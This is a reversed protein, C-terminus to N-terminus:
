RVIKQGPHESKLAASQEPRLKASKTGTPAPDFFPGRLVEAGSAPAPPPPEWVFGHTWTVRYCPKGRCILYAEFHKRETVKNLVFGKPLKINPGLMAAASSPRDFIRLREKDRYSLGGRGYCPSKKAADVFWKPTKPDTTLDVPGGTTEIKSPLYGVQKKGDKTTFSVELEIWLFQVWCCDLANGSSHKADLSIWGKSSSGESVELQANTHVVVKGEHEGCKFAENLHLKGEDEVTLGTAVSLVLGVFVLAWSVHRSRM